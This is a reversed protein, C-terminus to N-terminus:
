KRKFLPIFVSRNSWLLFCEMALLLIALVLGEPAFMLHFWFINFINPALLALALPVFNGSLLLLSCTVELGKVVFLLKSAMLLGIFEAAQGQMPPMPLFHFFGNLGFILFVLGLLVRVVLTIKKM